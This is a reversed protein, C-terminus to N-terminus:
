AAPFLRRPRRRLFGAMLLALASAAVCLAAGARFPGEDYFLAVRHRGPPVRVGCFSGNAIEVEAPAGDLTARWSRFYTAAFVAVSPANSELEATFGNGEERADLLRPAPSAAPPDADAGRLLADTAPDFRPSGVLEVAGSLSARRFVRGAARIVPVPRDAERIDVRRGSVELRARRHFGPLIEEEGALVFRTSSALLLRSRAEPPSQGVAEFFVRDVFGYSGDPDKDYAYRVGEPAGTLPWLERRGALILEGIDDRGLSHRTGFKSVTFEPINGIWTRGPGAVIAAAGPPAQYARADVSVFLPWGAPVLTLLTAALMGPLRFRRLRGKGFVAFLIAMAAIGCAADRRVIAAIGPLVQSPGFVLGRFAPALAAGIGAEAFTFVAASAALLAAFLVALARVRRGREREAWQGAALAALSSLGLAMPLAFKIPYRFHRLAPIAYLLEFLPTRFGLSLLAFLITAGALARVIRSKRFAGISLAALVLLLPALGFNLSYLYPQLSDFWSFAWFTGSAVPRPAGFVLPLVSEVARVPVNAAANFQERSFLHEGRFSYPLAARTALLLPAGICLGLFGGAIAPVFTRAVRERGGASLLAFAFPIGCAFMTWASIAPEGALLQLGLATGLALAARARQDTGRALRVAEALAWPAWAAAAAANTFASAYSLYPGSFAYAAGGIWSAPRPAGLRRALLAAGFFAWAVHLLLHLNFVIPVPLIRYLLHTPYLAVTNPDSLLPQVNSATFDLFPAVGRKEMALAVQAFPLHTIFADRFVLLRAGALLPLLPLLFVGLVAAPVLATRKV